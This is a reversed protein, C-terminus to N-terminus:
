KRLKNVISKIGMPLFSFVLLNFVIVGVIVIIGTNLSAIEM